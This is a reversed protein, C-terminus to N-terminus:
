KNDMEWIKINFDDGAAIYRNKITDFHVDGVSDKPLWKYHKVVGQCENLEVM